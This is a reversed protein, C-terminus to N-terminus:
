YPLAADKAAGDSWASRAWMYRRPTVCVGSLELVASSSMLYRTRRKSPEIDVIYAAVGKMRVVNSPCGM